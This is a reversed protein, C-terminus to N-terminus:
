QSALPVLLCSREMSRDSDLLGEWMYADDINISSLRMLSVYRLM